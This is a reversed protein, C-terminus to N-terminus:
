PTGGQGDTVMAPLAAGAKSDPTSSRQQERPGDDPVLPGPWTISIVAGEGPASDVEVNGGVQIVREIISVRLGIRAVPVAHVDFGVGTDGVEVTIGGAETGRISLWRAVDAGAGAHQTSNVMAQVAASYVAEAAQASLDAGEVRGDRIEFAAALTPAVTRIRHALESVPVTANDPPSSAAERLYGMADAAMRAALSESEPTTARAASILTTLVSDHVIADVQVREVETAHQGVATSYRDLATAQALDVSVAAHRLLTMIILVTGGLILAYVVDLAVLEVGAGGGSPTVRVIGYTLSAAVLAITAAWVPWAVAAAATAVTLLFWPWPRGDEVLESGTVALPWTMMVVIWAVVVASNVARVGRKSVSAVMAALLGGYVAASSLLFWVPALQDAQGLLVPLTQAGFVLGFVGSSRSVATEIRRRSTPNRPVRPGASERHPPDDAVM